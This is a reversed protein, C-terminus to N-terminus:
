ADSILAHPVLTPDQHRLGEAFCAVLLALLFWSETPRLFQMFRLLPLSYNHRNHVYDYKFYAVALISFGWILNLQAVKLSSVKLLSTNIADAVSYYGIAIVAEVFLTFVTAFIEEPRYCLCRNGECMNWVCGISGLACAGLCWVIPNVVIGLVLSIMKIAEWLTNRSIITFSIIALPILIQGLLTLLCIFVLGGWFTSVWIFNSILVNPVFSRLSLQPLSLLIFALNVLGVFLLLVM